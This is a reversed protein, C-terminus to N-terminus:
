FTQGGRGIITRIDGLPTHYQVRYQLVAWGVDPASQESADSFDPDLTELRGGLMNSGELGDVISAIIDDNVEDITLSSTRGSQCDFQLTLTHLWHGLEPSLEFDDRVARIVVGPLEGETLPEQDSRNTFWFVDSRETEMASKVAALIKSIATAM